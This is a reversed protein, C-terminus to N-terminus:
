SPDAGLVLEIRIPHGSDSVLTARLVRQDPLVPTQTRLARPLGLAWHGTPGFIQAVLVGALVNALEALAGSAQALAEEDNVEVCLMDAAMQTALEPAAALVLRGRVEAEFGIEVLLFDGSWTAEDAAPESFLFATDAFTSAALAALESTTPPAIM